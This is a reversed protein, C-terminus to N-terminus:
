CKLATPVHMEIQNRTIYKGLTTLLFTQINQYQARTRNVIYSLVFERVEHEALARDLYTPNGFHFRSAATARAHDDSFIQHCVQLASPIHPHASRSVTVWGKERITPGDVSSATLSSAWMFLVCNAEVYRYLLSYGHLEITTGDARDLFLTYNKQYRTDSREQKQNTTDYFYLAFGILNSLCSCM